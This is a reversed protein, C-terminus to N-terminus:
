QEYNELLCATIQPELLRDTLPDGQVPIFHFLAPNPPSGLSLAGKLSFHDAQSNWAGSGQGGAGGPPFGPLPCVLAWM